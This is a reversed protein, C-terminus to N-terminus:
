PSACGDSYDSQSLHYAWTEDDVGEALQAFMNTNQARLNLRADPGRFYFSKDEGLEGAAYKRRHSRLEAKVPEVNVGVTQKSHSFLWFLPPGTQSSGFQPWGVGLGPV